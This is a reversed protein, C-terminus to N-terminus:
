PPNFAPNQALLGALLDLREKIESIEKDRSNVWVPARHQKKTIELCALFDCLTEPYQMQAASVSSEATDRYDHNVMWRIIELLDDLRALHASVTNPPCETIDGMVRRALRKLLDSFLKSEPVKKIESGRNLEIEAIRKDTPSLASNDPLKLRFRKQVYVVDDGKGAHLPGLRAREAFKQLAFTKVKAEAEVRLAAANLLEPTEFVESDGDFVLGFDAAAKRCFAAAEIFDANDAETLARKLSRRASCLWEITTMKALLKGM